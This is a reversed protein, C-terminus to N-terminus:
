QYGNQRIKEQIDAQKIYALLDYAAPKHGARKLIVVKQKIPQYYTTPIIWVDDFSTQQNERKYEQVQSLAVFGAEANHSAVFHFAQAINEGFVVTKMESPQLQLSQMTEFAAQGYPALKPNAVALHNYNISYLYDKGNHSISQNPAWLVLQGMAYIYESEALGSKKLQEPHMSDASFFLDYPAGQEIQAYLRATAGSSIVIRNSTLASFQTAISKFTNTFDSAVAVRIVNEETKANLQKLSVTIFLIIAILIVIRFINNAMVKIM